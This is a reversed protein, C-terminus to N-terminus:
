EGCLGCRNVRSHNQFTCRPCAWSAPVDDDGDFIMMMDNHELRSTRFFLDDDETEITRMLPIEGNLRDFDRHQFSYRPGFLASFIDNNDIGPKEKKKDQKAEEKIQKRHEQLITLMSDSLHIRKQCTHATLFMIQTQTARLHKRAVIDSLQETLMELESQVQEFERKEREKLKEQSRRMNHTTPYRFFAFAYSHQLLSRCELLESFANHVFSLGKGGFDFKEDCNFDIAAEVVPALRMYATQAMKRELTASESHAMWRRYHHLFRGMEKSRKWAVRASHLATGYTNESSIADGRAAGLTLNDELSRQEPPPTDYFKHKDDEQWRNCQFFGGTETNHLKWDERCIWCFEHKCNRNTCTMHNCGDNKEIPAKCKPCPRTNAKMWLRQAVDNFHEGNIPEDNDDDDKKLEGIETEIQEKWKELMDCPVPWHIGKSGCAFCFRHARTPTTSNRALLYNPDRVGEYTLPADEDQNFGAAVCVAGYYNILDNDLKSKIIRRPVRQRVVCGCNSYPCFCLDEANVVFNEDAAALLSDSVDSNPSLSKIENIMLPESCDHHPCDICFGSERGKACDAIYNGLCDTCFGHQCNSLSIWGNSSSEFNDCCILCVALGEEDKAEEEDEKHEISKKADACDSPVSIGADKLAIMPDKQFSKIARAHNWQHFKAFKEAHVETLLHLLFKFKSTAKKKTKRESEAFNFEVLAAIKSDSELERNKTNTKEQSEEEESKPQAKTREGSREKAAPKKDYESYTAIFQISDPQDKIIGDVAEDSNVTEDDKSSKAAAVAAVSSESTAEVYDDLCNNKLFDDREKEAQQKQLISTMEQFLSSIRATREKTVQEPTWSEYLSFPAKLRRIASKRRRRKKREDENIDDDESESNSPTNMRVSALMEEDMGYPDTYLLARAELQAALYHHEQQGAVECPTQGMEDVITLIAGFSTLIALCLDTRGLEACYHLATRGRSDVSNLSPGDGAASTGDQPHQWALMSLLADMRESTQVSYDADTSKTKGLVAKEVRQMDDPTEDKFKSFLRSMAKAAVKKMQKSNSKTDVKKPLEPKPVSPSRIGVDEAHDLQFKYVLGGALM